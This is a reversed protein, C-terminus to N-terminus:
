PRIGLVRYAVSGTPGLRSRAREHPSGSKGFAASASSQSTRRCCRTVAGKRGRGIARAYGALLVQKLTRPAMLRLAEKVAAPLEPSLASRIHPYEALLGENVSDTIANMQDHTPPAAHVVDMRSLIPAPISHLENATALWLIRSADIDIDLHEDRFGKATEPELLRYLPGDVSWRPDRNLKDLEDIIVLPNAVESELLVNAVLGQRANGWLQSTGSLVFGATLETGAVFRALVGLIRAVHQIVVTKGIGSAGVLLIRPMRVYPPRGIMALRLYMCVKDLFEGFNPFRVRLGDIQKLKAQTVLALRRYPGKDRMRCLAEHLAHSRSREPLRGEAALRAAVAHVDFIMVGGALDPRPAMETPEISPLEPLEHAPKAEEEEAEKLLLETRREYEAHLRELTSPPLWLQSHLTAREFPVIFRPGRADEDTASNRALTPTTHPRPHQQGQASGLAFKPHM